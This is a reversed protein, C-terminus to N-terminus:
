HIYFQINRMRKEKNLRDICCRCRACAGQSNTNKLKGTTEPCALFYLNKLEDDLVNGMFALAVNPFLKNQEFCALGEKINVPDISIYVACNKAEAIIKVFAFTRTYIWFKIQSYKNMIRQMAFAHEYNLIDGSYHWRFYPFEKGKHKNIFEQLMSDLRQEIQNLDSNKLIDTNHTLSKAVGKYIRVVKAMYCTMSKGTRRDLCGGTGKTSGPCTGGDEPRGYQFGITNKHKSHFKTKSNNTLKLM